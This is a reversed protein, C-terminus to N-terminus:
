RENPFLSGIIDDAEEQPMSNHLLNWSEELQRAMSHDPFDPDLVLGQWARTTRIILSLALRHKALESSAPSQLFLVRQDDLFEDCVSLCQVVSGAVFECFRRQIPLPGDM